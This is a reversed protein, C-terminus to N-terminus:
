AAETADSPRRRLAPVMGAFALALAALAFSAPEPVTNCSGSGVAICTSGFNADLTAADLGVVNRQFLPSSGFYVSTSGNAAGNFTLTALTISDGQLGGLTADDLFSLLSVYVQGPTSIDFLFGPDDTPANWPTGDNTAGTADLVSSDFLIDLDYAGVIEGAATLGSIVLDVSVAGGVAIATSTPNLSVTLAQSPLATVALWAAALMGAFPTNKIRMPFM